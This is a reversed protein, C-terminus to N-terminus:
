KSSTMNHLRKLRARIMQRKLNFIPRLANYKARLKLDKLAKAKFEEFDPRDKMTHLKYALEMAEVAEARAFKKRKLAIRRM